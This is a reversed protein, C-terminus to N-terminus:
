QHAVFSQILKEFQALSANTKVAHSSFHTRLAIYGHERLLFLAQETKLPETKTRAAVRHLDFFGVINEKSEEALAHIFSDDTLKDMKKLLSKQQLQGCWLPGVDAFTHSCHEVTVSCRSCYYVLHHPKLISDCAEKSKEARFFVRYYHDKSYSCVPLLAKDFQAGVLQVKRILIRLGIEHMLENRLPIAWYKRRCAAPATGALAATDTATVALIGDRAIRKVAADLFPNPTGFPDIDIYDFGTSNLLFLTADDRHFTVNRVSLKNLKFNKKIASVSSYDNVAISEVVDPLEQLFRVARVGSGALPDAVHLNKKGLARLLLISVDRNFKMVPNYFVPLKKSLKGESVHIKANSETIIGM